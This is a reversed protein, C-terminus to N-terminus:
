FSESKNTPPKNRINSVKIRIGHQNRTGYAENISVYVIDSLGTDQPRLNPTEYIIDTIKM